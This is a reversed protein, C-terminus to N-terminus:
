GQCGPLLEAVLVSLWSIVRGRHFHLQGHWTSLLSPSTRLSACESVFIGFDFRRRNILLLTCHFAFNLFAVYLFILPLLWFYFMDLRSLMCNSFTRYRVKDDGCTAFINSDHPHAALGWLEGFNHGSTVPRNKLLSGDQLKIEVIDGGRTGLIARAKNSSIGVSQVAPNLCFKQHTDFTKSLEIVRDPSQHCIWIKILGDVGASVFKEGGPITEVCNMPGRHANKISGKGLPLMMTNADKPPWVCIHGKQTATIIRGIADFCVDVITITGALDRGFRANRPSIQSKGSRKWFTMHKFGVTVIRSDDLPNVETDHQFSLGFVKDPGTRVRLLSVGKKWDHLSMSNQDDLGISALTMGDPSFALQTVGREHSPNLTQLQRMTNSEWVIIKPTRGVEGTACISYSGRKKIVPTMALSIIDDTHGSMYRQRMSKPDVCIALAAATYVLAGDKTYAVNNRCDQGRFGHVHELMLSHEIPDKSRDEAGQPRSRRATTHWSKSQMYHTVVNSKGKQRRGRVQGPKPEGADVSVVRSGVFDDELRSMERIQRDSREPVVGELDLNEDGIVMHDRKQQYARQGQLNQNSGSDVKTAGEIERRRREHALLSANKKSSSPLAPRSNTQITYLKQQYERDGLLLSGLKVGRQLLLSPEALRPLSGVISSFVFEFVGTPTAFDPQDRALPDANIYELGYRKAFDRAEADTVPMKSNDATFDGYNSDSELGLQSGLAGDDLGMMGGSTQGYGRARAEPSAYGTTTGVLMPIISTWSSEVARLWVNQVHEFSARNNKDFLVLAAAAGSTFHRALPVYRSAGPCDWYEIRYTQKRYVYYKRFFNVGIKSSTIPNDRTGGEGELLTTKGVGPDGLVVVKFSFHYEDNGPAGLPNGLSKSNPAGPAPPAGRRLAM